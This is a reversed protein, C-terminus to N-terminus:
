GTAARSARSQPPPSSAAARRPPVFTLDLADGPALQEWQRLLDSLEARMATLIDEPIFPPEYDALGRTALQSRITGHFDQASSFQQLMQEAAIQGAVAAALKAEHPLAPPTGRDDFDTLDWGAAILGLHGESLELAREVVIHALDYSHGRGDRAGISGSTTTSDERALLLITRANPHKEIRVALKPGM